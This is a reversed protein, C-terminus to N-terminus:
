WINVGSKSKQPTTEVVDDDSFLDDEVVENSVGKTVVVDAIIRIKPSTGTKTNNKGPLDIKELEAEDFSDNLEDCLGYEDERPVRKGSKVPKSSSGTAKEPKTKKKKPLPEMDETEGIVDLFESHLEESLVDRSKRSSINSKNLCAARGKLRSSKGSVNSLSINKNRKLNEVNKNVDAIVEECEKLLNKTSKDDNQNDQSKRNNNSTSGYNNDYNKM